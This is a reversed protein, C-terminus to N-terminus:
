GTNWAIRPVHLVRFFVKGSGYEEKEETHAIIGTIRLAGKKFAYLKKKRDEKITQTKGKEAPPHGFFKQFLIKGPRGEKLDGEPGRNDHGEAFGQFMVEPRLPGKASFSLM